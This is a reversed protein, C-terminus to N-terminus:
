RSHEEREIWKVVQAPNGAVVSFAPVDKTVVSQAAVVAGQGIHVGKLICAREGIWVDDEINIPETDSTYRDILEGRELYAITQKRRLEQDLPHENTDSIYVDRAILCYSGMEVRSCSIIQGRINLWCYDGIIINGNQYCRLDAQLINVHNGIVVQERRAGELYVNTGKGCKFHPGVVANKLVEEEPTLTPEQAAINWWRRMRRAVRHSISVRAM